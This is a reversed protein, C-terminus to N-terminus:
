EARNMTSSAADPILARRTAQFYAAVFATRKKRRPSTEQVKKACGTFENAQM